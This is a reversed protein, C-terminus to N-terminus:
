KLFAIMTVVSFALELAIFLLAISIIVIELKIVYTQFYFFYAYALLCAIGLFVSVAVYAFSEMLNGNRALINRFVEMILLLILLLVDSILTQWSYLLTIGKYIFVSIETVFFLWTYWKNLILFLQLVFSSKLCSTGSKSVTIEEGGYNFCMFAM